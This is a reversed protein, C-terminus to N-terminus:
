LESSMRWVLAVSGSYIPKWGLNEEMKLNNYRYNARLLVPTKKFAYVGGLLFGYRGIGMATNALDLGATMNLNKLVPYSGSVNVFQNNNYVPYALEVVGPNVQTQGLTLAVMASKKSYIISGQVLNSGYTVTDMTSQNKNYTLAFRIVRDQKKIQYNVRGTWVEGLLPKQSISLTDDFSRFVSFPKYSLMISPYMKSHTKLEFGWRSNTGKSYFNNQILYNYEISLSLFSRFFDSAGKLMLRETGSMIVPLTNNEFDSGAYEYAADLCISTKPINGSIGVNFISRDKFGISQAAEKSQGQQNSFAYEGNLQLYKSIDGHYLLSIIHVPNRFSPLSVDLSKFFQDEQLLQSSPSYGYYVLGFVQKKFPKFNINGGYTKYSEVNGSGDIYETKGYTLGIDAFGIDYGMGVGRLIQGSLTYDSLSKSFMGADFSTLGAVFGKAKGEPLLASAKKALDKNSMGDIDKLDQIKDYALVSDFYLNNKYQNLLTEYHTIKAQLEVIRQYKEMAQAERRKVSDAFQSGKAYLNSSDGDAVIMQNMSDRGKTEMQGVQGKVADLDPVQVSSQQKLEAMIKNQETKLQHVYNGYIMQYNDGQALAEDYKEKYASVLKMMKEKAKESDYSLHIYRAKAKRNKDQTTLYGSINVPIDFVPIELMGEIDYYSNDQKSFPEQENSFNASLSLEMNMEKDESSKTLDRFQTMLSSQHELLKPTNGTVHSLNANLDRKNLGDRLSAESIECEGLFWSGAFLKIKHRGAEEFRQISIGNKKFYRELRNSNYIGLLKSNTIVPMSASLKPARGLLNQSLGQQLRSNSPLISDTNKVFFSQVTDKGNIIRVFLKYNGPPILAYKKLIASFEPLMYCKQGASQFNLRQRSLGKKIELKEKEISYIRISDGKEYKYCSMQFGAKFAAKSDFYIEQFLKKDQPYIFDTSFIFTDKPNVTKPSQALAPMAGIMLLLLVAPM